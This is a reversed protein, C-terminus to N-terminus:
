CGKRTVWGIRRGQEDHVLQSRFCAESPAEHPPLTFLGAQEEGSLTAERPRLSVRAPDRGPPLLCDAYRPGPLRLVLHVTKDPRASAFVVAEARRSERVCASIAPLFTSLSSIWDGSAPAPTPAPLPVPGPEEEEAPEDPSSRRCCGTLFRGDPLSVRAGFPLEGASLDTCAEEKLFVVVDRPAGGAARGRWGFSRTAEDTTLRGELTVSRGPPLVLRAREGNLDLRWSPGNGVCDLPPPPPDAARAGVPAAAVLALLLPTRANRM